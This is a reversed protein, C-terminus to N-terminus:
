CAAPADLFFPVFCKTARTASEAGFQMAGTIRSPVRYFEAEAGPLFGINTANWLQKAIM